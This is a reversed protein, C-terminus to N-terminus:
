RPTEAQGLPRGERAASLRRAVHSRVVRHWTAPEVFRAYMAFLDPAGAATMEGDFGRTEVAIMVLRAPAEM